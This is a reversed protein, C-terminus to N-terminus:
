MYMYSGGMAQGSAVHVHLERGNSAWQSCLWYIYIQAGTIFQRQSTRYIVPMQCVCTYVHGRVVKKVERPLGSTLNDHRQAPTKINKPQWGHQYIGVYVADEEVEEEQYDEEEEDEEEEDEEEEEM